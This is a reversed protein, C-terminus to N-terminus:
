HGEVVSCAFAYFAKAMPREDDQILRSITKLSIARLLRRSGRQTPTDVLKICRRRIVKPRRAYGLARLVDLLIFWVKGASDEVTRVAKYEFAYAKM